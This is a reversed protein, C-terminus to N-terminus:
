GTRVFVDVRDAPGSDDVGGMARVDIRNSPIGSDILLQRVALGRKLSLRRADSSKDGPAGGYAEIEIRAAGAELASNLDAALMQMGHYQAPSPAPANKDFLIAGRKTLNAHNSNGRADVAAVHAAAPAVPPTQRAPASPPTPRAAPTVPASLLEPSGDLSM